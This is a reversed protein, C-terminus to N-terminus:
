KLKTKTKSGDKWKMEMYYTDLNKETDEFLKIAKWENALFTAREICDTWYHTVDWSNSLYWKFCRNRKYWPLAIFLKQATDLIFDNKKM